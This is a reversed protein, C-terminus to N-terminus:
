KLTPTSVEDYLKFPRELTAVAVAKNQLMNLM